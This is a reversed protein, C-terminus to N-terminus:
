RVGDRECQGDEVVQSGLYKFCKLEELPKGNLRTDLPDANVDRSYRMYKSKYVNM